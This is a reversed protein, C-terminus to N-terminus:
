VVVVFSTSPAVSNMDVYDEVTRPNRKSEEAAIFSDSEPLCLSAELEFELREDATPVNCTNADFTIYTESDSSGPSRCEFCGNETIAAGGIEIEKRFESCPLNAQQQFSTGSSGHLTSEIVSKTGFGLASMLGGNQCLQEFEDADADRTSDRANVATQPTELLPDHQLFDNPKAVNEKEVALLISPTFLICGSCCCYVM